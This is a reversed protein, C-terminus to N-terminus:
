PAGPADGPQPRHRESPARRSRIRQRAAQARDPPRAGPHGTDADRGRRSFTPARSVLRQGLGTSGGPYSAAGRDQHSSNRAPACAPPRPACAARLRAGHRRSPPWTRRPGPRCSCVCPEAPRHHSRAGSWTRHTRIPLAVDCRASGRKPPERRWGAECEQDRSGARISDTACARGSGSTRGLDSGDVSDRSHGECGSVDLQTMARDMPRLVPGPDQGQRGNPDGPSGVRNGGRQIPATSAMRGISPVGPSCLGPRATRQREM